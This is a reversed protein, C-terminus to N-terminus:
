AATGCSLCHPTGTYGNISQRDAALSVAGHPAPGTANRLEFWAEGCPCTAYGPTNDPRHDDINTINAMGGHNIVTRAAGLPFRHVLKPAAGEAHGPRPTVGGGCAIQM